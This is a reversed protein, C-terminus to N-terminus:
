EALRLLVIIWLLQTMITDNSQGSLFHCNRYDWGALAVEALVPLSFRPRARETELKKGGHRSAQMRSLGSGAWQLEVEHNWYREAGFSVM